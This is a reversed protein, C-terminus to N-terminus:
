REGFVSKTKKSVNTPTDTTVRSRKKSDWHVKYDDLLFQEVSPPPDTTLFDNLYIPKM